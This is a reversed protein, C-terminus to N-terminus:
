TRLYFKINNIKTIYIHKNNYGGFRWSLCAVMGVFIYGSKFFLDTQYFFVYGARGGFIIGIVAWIFFNDLHNNSILNGKSANIKKILFLGILLGIIYALSYWRIDIYGLSIIVPDISPQIFNM